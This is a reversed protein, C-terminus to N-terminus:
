SSAVALAAELAQLLARAAAVPLSLDMDGDTLQSVGLAVVGPAARVFVYSKEASHEDAFQVTAIQKM